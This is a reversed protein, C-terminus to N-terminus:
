PEPCTSWSKPSATYILDPQSNVNYVTGRITFCYNKNNNSTGYTYGNITGDADPDKPLKSIFDPTLGLIYNTSGPVGPTPYYNNVSKYAALAIQIERMDALRKVDKAKNRVSSLGIITVSSLIAIIAIAVLLEILTFGFIKIKRTKM